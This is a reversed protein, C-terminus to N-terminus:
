KKKLYNKNNLNQCKHKYDMKPGKQIYHIDGIIVPCFEQFGLGSDWGAM